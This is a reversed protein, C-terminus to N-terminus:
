FLFSKFIRKIKNKKEELIHKSKILKNIINKLFILNTNNEFKKIKFDKKIKYLKMIAYNKYNNKSFDYIIDTFYLDGYLRIETPMSFSATSINHLHIIGYIHVFTFSTAITFIIFNVIADEAWSVFKSYKKIGLKITAEKYITTKICKAWITVDHPEFKGKKTIMWASLEPQHVSINIPYYKYEYLDIIKELKDDYNGIRFARFGVIDYFYRQTAKLINDFINQSFFLDDNDLGFVYKGISILVGISRSYLTGMNKKNKIIKIRKDKEEFNSIISLSNDNSLDDILIIEINTFNQNQISCISAIITRESNYIPIIVSIIPNINHKYENSLNKNNLCKDIFKKGKIIISRKEDNSMIDKKFDYTNSYLYLIICYIFIKKSIINKGKVRKQFNIIM